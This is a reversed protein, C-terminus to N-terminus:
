ALALHPTCKYAFVSPRDVTIVFEEKIKGKWESAGEPVVLSASNHGKDVAVLEITDGGEAMVIAPEFWNRQGDPGKNLMQIEQEAASTTSALGIGLAAVMLLSSLGVSM